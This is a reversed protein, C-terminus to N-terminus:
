HRDVAMAAIDAKRAAPEVRTFIRQGGGKTLCVLLDADVGIGDGNDTLQMRDTCVHTAAPNNRNDTM